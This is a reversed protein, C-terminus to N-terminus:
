LKEWIGKKNEYITEGLTKVDTFTLTKIGDIETATVSYENGDIDTYATPVFKYKKSIDFRDDLETQTLDM